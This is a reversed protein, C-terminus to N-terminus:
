VRDGVRKIREEREREGERDSIGCATKVQRSKM